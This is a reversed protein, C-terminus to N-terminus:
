SDKGMGVRAALVGCIEAFAARARKVESAANAISGAHAMKELAALPAVMARAGATASTGALRHAILEVEAVAGRQVAAELAALEETTYDLYFEVFGATDEDGSLSVFRDWDLPGDTSM